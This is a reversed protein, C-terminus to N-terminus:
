IIVVRLRPVAQYATLKVSQSGIVGWGWLEPEINFQVNGRKTMVTMLVLRVDSCLSNQGTLV